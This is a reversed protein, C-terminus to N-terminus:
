QILEVIRRNGTDAVRIRRKSDVSIGWPTAFEGVGNGTRGYRGLLGGELSARSVRGAAYEVVYLTNDSGLQLAYPLGLSWPRDPSGLVRIFQGTDSFVQIRNNIADAVYLNGAHWVM